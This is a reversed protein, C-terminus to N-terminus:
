VITRCFSYKSAKNVCYDFSQRSTIMNESCAATVEVANFLNHWHLTHFKILVIPQAHCSVYCSEILLPVRQM